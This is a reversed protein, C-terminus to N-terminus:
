RFTIPAPERAPVVASVFRQFVTEYGDVLRATSFNEVVHAVCVGPDLRSAVRLAGPLEDVHECILGTRGPVVLEPVAGRRLAVVPTGTAMAELMVIGFPEEWQIPMVLCRAELLLRFADRRDADLVVTIDDGLMPQVVDHYYRREDPENCKGALVLPLGANRCARIALDPGKDPSFRALWLVPGHSPTRKHPIDDVDLANHVTGVWPLRLNLRRQAHSIAVLGVSRDIDGLVTGYEGVPNGHVTAVTPVARRGALLPGITTHDHVVDFQEPGVLQNVQVLHALEPLAEGIRQFKLEADTSVFRAATDTREGAGFLTVTHGRAILGDVLGAVVHELGGYGPPPVSLWPPVVMAIRLPRGASSNDGRNRAVLGGEPGQHAAGDM